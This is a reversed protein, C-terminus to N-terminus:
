PKGGSALKLAAKIQDHVTKADPLNEKGGIFYEEAAELAKVLEPFANCCRVIYETNAKCEPRASSGFGHIFVYAGDSMVNGYQDQTWPLATITDNTKM